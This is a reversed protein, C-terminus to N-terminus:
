RGPDPESRDGVVHEEDWLRREGSGQRGSLVFFAAGLVTLRALQRDLPSLMRALRTAPPFYVAGRIAEVHFGADAALRELVSPSRFIASRWTASGFWARLRRWAAWTSWPSLEGILVQGEPRLATATERFFRAADEVFCLVTVAVVVDFSAPRFPLHTVDGVVWMAHLGCGTARRRAARTMAASSDVGVVSAGRAAAALAYTGDGCGADLLRRGALNSAVDFLREQEVSEVLRGIATERWLRLREPELEGAAADAPLDGLM